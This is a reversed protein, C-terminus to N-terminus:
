MPPFVPHPLLLLFDPFYDDVADNNNDTIDGAENRANGVDLLGGTYKVKNAGDETDAEANGEDKEM